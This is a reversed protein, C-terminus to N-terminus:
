NKRRINWRTGSAPSYSIIARIRMRCCLLTLLCLYENVVVTALTIRVEIEELDVVQPGIKGREAPTLAKEENSDAEVDSVDEM